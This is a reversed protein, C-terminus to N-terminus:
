TLSHFTIVPQEQQRSLRHLLNETGCLTDGPLPWGTPDLSPMFCSKSSFLNVQDQKETMWSICQLGKLNFIM